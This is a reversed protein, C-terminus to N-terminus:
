LYKIMSECFTGNGDYGLVCDCMYSGPIDTCNANVDCDNLSPDSCEDLEINHCFIFYCCCLPHNLNLKRDCSTGNPNIYGSLCLCDFNGLTNLCFTTQNDCNDTSVECEDIDSFIVYSM